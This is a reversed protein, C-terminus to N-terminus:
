CSCPCCNERLVTHFSIICKKIFHFHNESLVQNLRKVHSERVQPRRFLAELKEHKLRFECPGLFATMYMHLKEKDVNRMGAAKFLIIQIRTAKSEQKVTGTPGPWAVYVRGRCM